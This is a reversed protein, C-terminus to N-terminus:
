DSSNRPRTPWAWQQAQGGQSGAKGTERCGARALGEPDPPTLGYSEGTSPAPDDAPGNVVVQTTADLKGTPEPTM